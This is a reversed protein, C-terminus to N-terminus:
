PVTESLKEVFSTRGSKNKGGIAWWNQLRSVPQLSLEITIHFYQWQYKSLCSITQSPIHLSHQACSHCDLSAAPSERDGSRHNISTRYIIQVSLNHFVVVPNPQSLPSCTTARFFSKPATFPQMEGSEISTYRVSALYTRCESAPLLEVTFLLLSISGLMCSVPM